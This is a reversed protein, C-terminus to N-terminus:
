PHRTRCVGALNTRFRELFSYRVYCRVHSVFNPQSVQYDHHCYPIRVLPNGTDSSLPSRRPFVLVGGLPGSSMDGEAAGVTLCTSMWRLRWNIWSERASMAEALANIARDRWDMARWLYKLITHAQHWCVIRQCRVSLPSRRSLDAMTNAKGTKRVHKLLQVRAGGRGQERAPPM